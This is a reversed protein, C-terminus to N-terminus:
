ITLVKEAVVKVLAASLTAKGETRFDYSCGHDEPLRHQPCFVKTCKCPTDLVVKKKCESASCRKVPM